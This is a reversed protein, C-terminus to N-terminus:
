IIVLLNVYICFPKKRPKYLKILPQVKESRNQVKVQIKELSTMVVHGQLNASDSHYSRQYTADDVSEVHLPTYLSHHGVARTQRPGAFHRIVHDELNVREIQCNPHQQEGGSVGLPQLAYDAREEVPLALLSAHQIEVVLAQPASEPM